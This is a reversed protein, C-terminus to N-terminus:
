RIRTYGVRKKWLCQTSSFSPSSIRYGIWSDNIGRNTRNETNKLVLETGRRKSHGRYFQSICETDNERRGIENFMSMFIIRGEFEEPECQIRKMFKQIEELIELMTSRPFIIWVFETQRGDIGNLDKLFNNKGYWWVENATSPNNVEGQCLISDSFAYVKATIIREAKESLLSISRWTFNRYEM